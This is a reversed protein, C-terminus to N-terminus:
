ENLSWMIVIVCAPLLLKIQSLHTLQSSQLVVRLWESYLMSVTYWKSNTNQFLLSGQIGQCPFKALLYICVILSSGEAELWSDMEGLTRHGVIALWTHRPLERFPSSLSILIQGQREGQHRWVRYNLLLTTMVHQPRLSCTSSWFVVHFRYYM